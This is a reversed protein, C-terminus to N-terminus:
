VGAVMFTYAELLESDDCDRVIQSIVEENLAPGEESDWLGLDLDLIGEASEPDDNFANILMEYVTDEVLKRM